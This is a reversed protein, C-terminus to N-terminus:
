SLCGNRFRNSIRLMRNINNFDVRGSNWKNRIYGNLGILYMLELIMISGVFASYLSYFDYTYNVYQSITLINYILNAFILLTITMHSQFKYMLFLALLEIIIYSLYLASYELLETLQIGVIYFVKHLVFECLVIFAIASYEKVSILFLVLAILICIYGFM